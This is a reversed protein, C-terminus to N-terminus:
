RHDIATGRWSVDQKNVTRAECFDTEVPIFSNPNELAKAFKPARSLICFTARKLIGLLYLYAIFYVYLQSRCNDTLYGTFDSKKTLLKLCSDWAGGLTAPLKHNKEPLLMLMSRFLLIFFLLQFSFAVHYHPFQSWLFSSLFIFISFAPFQAFHFFPNSGPLM